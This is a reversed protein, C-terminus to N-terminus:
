MFGQLLNMNLVVVLELICTFLIGYGMVAKSKMTGKEGALIMATTSGTPFAIGNLACVAVGCVLPIMMEPSGGCAAVAPVSVSAVVAAVVGNGLFQTAIGSLVTFICMILMPSGKSALPGLLSTMAAPIGTDASNLVGALQFIAGMLILLDWNIEKMATSFNFMSKNDEVKVFSFVILVIVLSGSMGWMSLFESFKSGAPLFSPLLMVLLFFAFGIFAWIMGKTLKLCSTDISIEKTNVKAKPIVFLKVIVALIVTFIITTCGNFLMYSAAKPVSVGQATFFGFCGRTFIDISFFGNGLFSIVGAGVLTCATYASFPKLGLQKEIDKYIAIIIVLMATGNLTLASGVFAAIWVTLMLWMPGRMAFKRSLIWTSIARTMGVNNLAIIFCFSFLMQVVVQHGFIGPFIVADLSKWSIIGLYVMMAMCYWTGINFSWVVVFAIFAGIIRMGLPTLPAIPPLLGFAIMAVTTIILVLIEKKTLPKSM